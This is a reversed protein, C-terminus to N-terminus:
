ARNQHPEHNFLRLFMEAGQSGGVGRALKLVSKHSLVFMGGQFCLAKNCEHSELSVM